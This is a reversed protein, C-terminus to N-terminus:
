ELGVNHAYHLKFLYTYFSFHFCGFLFLHYISYIYVHVVLCTRSMVNNPCGLIGTALIIQPSYEASIQLQVIYKKVCVAM